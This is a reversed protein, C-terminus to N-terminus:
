RLNARTKQIRHVRRVRDPHFSRWKEAKAPGGIFDLWVAGAPTEVAQIFRFRGREGRISVETGRILRRRNVVYQGQKIWCSSPDNAGQGTM